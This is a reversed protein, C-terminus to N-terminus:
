VMQNKYVINISIICLTISLFLSWNRLYKINYIEKYDGIMEEASNNNSDIIGLKAKLSSNKNKEKSILTNLDYSVQYLKNIDGLINNSISFLDSQLKEISSIMKSYRQQVEQSAPYMKSMLYIQKFEDLILNFQQNLENMKNLYTKPKNTDFSVYKNQIEM